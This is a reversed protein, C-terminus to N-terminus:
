HAHTADEKPIELQGTVAATVLAQRYERLRDVQSSATEMCRGVVALNTDLHHVIARQEAIPPFPFRHARLKEGTLHFVTNANAEAIFVGMPVAARLVYLMFRSLSSDSTPRLRHLAKQYYCEEIEGSWIAARGVVNINAGGECVLLDGARLRFRYQEAPPFPMTKVDETDIRDWQVNANRLYPREFEGLGNKADLMKGLQVSYYAYLPGLEWDAPIEGIWPIGSDKMPVNPDLGKTVAQNILAARKEALRALLQQKKDILTDIVATKRDLFDAIARQTHLPPVPGKLQAADPMYITQHTSGMMLRDFEPKMARFIWLLYDPLIRPGCVWNVFDQTTAMPRPMIGSFGVSATRSLVVTGAPLVRASSNRTGAESICESTEGLYKNSGDRLQWIDALSFWPITCEEPSWYEPHTRSPTHGSEIRALLRLLVVDWHAPIQGIWPVGSPRMKPSSPAAANM